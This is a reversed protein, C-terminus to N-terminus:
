FYIQPLTGDYTQYGQLLQNQSGQGLFTKGLCFEQRMISNNFIYTRLYKM